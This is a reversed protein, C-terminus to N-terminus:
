KARNFGPKGKGGETMKKYGYYMMGFLALPGVFGEATDILSHVGDKFGDSVGSWLEATSGTANKLAETIAPAADPGAEIAGTGAITNFMETSKM